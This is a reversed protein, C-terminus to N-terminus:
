INMGRPGVKDPSSTTAYGALSGFLLKTKEKMLSKSMVGLERHQIQGRQGFCLAIFLLKIGRTRVADRQSDRLTPL